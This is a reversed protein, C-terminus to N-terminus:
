CIKNIRAQRGSKKFLRNLLDSKNEEGMGKPRCPAPDGKGILFVRCVSAIGNIKTVDGKPQLASIDQIRPKWGIGLFDFPIM